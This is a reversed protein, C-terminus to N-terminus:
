LYTTLDKCRPCNTTFDDHNLQNEATKQIPALNGSVVQLSLDTKQEVYSYVQQYLLSQRLRNFLKQDYWRSYFSKQIDTIPRLTTRVKTSVARGQHPVLIWWM